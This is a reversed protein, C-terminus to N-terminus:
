KGGFECKYSVNFLTIFINENKEHHGSWKRNIKKSKLILIGRILKKEISKVRIRNFKYKKNSLYKKYCQQM